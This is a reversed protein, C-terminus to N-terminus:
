VNDIVQMNIQAGCDMHLSELDTGLAKKNSIIFFLAVFLFM